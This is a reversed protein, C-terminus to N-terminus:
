LNILEEFRKKKDYLDTRNHAIFIERLKKDSIQRGCNYDFCNLKDIEASNIFTTLAEIVCETCFRHKCEFELTMKDDSKVPKNEM